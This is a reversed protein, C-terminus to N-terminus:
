RTAAAAPPAAAPADAPDLLQQPDLDPGTRGVAVLSEVLAIMAAHLADDDSVAVRRAISRAVLYPDAALIRALRGRPGGSATVVTAQRVMRRRRKEDQRGTATGLSAAAFRKLTQRREDDLGDNYGRLTAALVPSVTRPADTFPEGALMSALEM